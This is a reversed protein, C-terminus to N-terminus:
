TNISVLSVLPAASCVFNHELPTNHEMCVFDCLGRLVPFAWHTCELDM